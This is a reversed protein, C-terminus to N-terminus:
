HKPPTIVAPVEFCIIKKDGDLLAWHVRLKVSPYFSEIPFVNTYTYEEGAALPCPAPSGDSRTVQPCASVGTVGIFPLPIGGIDAYVDNVLTKVEQDPKFKFIVTTNTGKQLKCGTKRCPIIQIRESLNDFNQGQCQESPTVNTEGLVFIISLSIFVFGVNYAHKM